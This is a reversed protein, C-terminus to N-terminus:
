IEMHMHFIGFIRSPCKVFVSITIVLPFIMCSRFHRTDKRYPHDYRLYLFLDGGGEGEGRWALIQVTTSVVLQMMLSTRGIRDLTARHQTKFCFQFSSEPRNGLREHSTRKGVHM